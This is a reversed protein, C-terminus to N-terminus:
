DDGYLIEELILCEQLEMPCGGLSIFSRLLWDPVDSMNYTDEDEKFIHLVGEEEDVSYTLRADEEFGALKRLEDPIELKGYNEPDRLVCDESYMSCSEKNCYGCRRIMHTMLENCLEGLSVMVRVLEMAEMEQPIIVLAKDRVHIDLIDTNELDSMALHAPRICFKKSDNIIEFKMNKM